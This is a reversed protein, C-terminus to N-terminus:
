AVCICKSTVAGQYICIWKKRSPRRIRRFTVQGIEIMTYCDGGGGAGTCTGAYCSVDADDREDVIKDLIKDNLDTEAADKTDGKGIIRNVNHQKPAIGECAIAEGKIRASM